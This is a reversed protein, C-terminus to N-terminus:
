GDKNKCYPCHKLIVYDESKQEDVSLPERCIFCMEIETEKLTPNVAVRQDFVFCDGNWYSGGCEEFYNLIGGELQFVNEWGEKEM